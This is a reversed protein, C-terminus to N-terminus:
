HIGKETVSGSSPNKFTFQPKLVSTAFQHVQYFRKSTKMQSSPTKFIKFSMLRVFKLFNQIDNM